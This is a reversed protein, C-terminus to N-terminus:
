RRGMSGRALREREVGANGAAQVAPARAQRAILGAMAQAAISLAKGKRRALVIPRRLQTDRVPVAALQERRFHFLTLEP